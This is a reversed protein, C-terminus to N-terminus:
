TEAGLRPAAPDPSWLSMGGDVPLAAGTVFHTEVALSVIARAVDEPAGVRGLPTRGAAKAFRDGENRERNERETLPTRVLGPVVANVRVGVGGLAWALGNVLGVVGMKASGYGVHPGGGGSISGTLTVSQDAVYTASDRLWPYLAAILQFQSVLNLEVSRRFAAVGSAGNAIMHREGEVVGGVLAVVHQLPAENEQVRSALDSLAEFDCVDVVEGRYSTSRPAEVAADLDLGLVRFGKNLFQETTASGIGGAAGAVVVTRVQSM